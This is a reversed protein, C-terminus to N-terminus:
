LKRSVDLFSKEVVHAPREACELHAGQTDMCANWFSQYNSPLHFCHGRSAAALIGCIYLELPGSIM